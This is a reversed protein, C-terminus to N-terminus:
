LIVQFLSKLFDCSSNTSLPVFIEVANLLKEQFASAHDNVDESSLYTDWNVESLYTNIADYDYKSFNREM